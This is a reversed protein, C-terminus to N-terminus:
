GREYERLNEGDGLNARAGMWGHHMSGYREVVNEKKKELARGYEEVLEPTGDEKSFLCIFPITLKEAEEKVLRRYEPLYDSLSLGM